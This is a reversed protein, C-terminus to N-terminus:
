GRPPSYELSSAKRMAEVGQEISMLPTTKAASLAGGSALKLAAAAMNVDDPAELIGVIDYEGFAFWVGVVRGGIQETISRGIEEPRPGPDALMAAWTEPSYAAQYLYLAM